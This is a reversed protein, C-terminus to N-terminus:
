LTEFAPESALPADRYLGLRTRKCPCGEPVKDRAYSLMTAQNIGAEQGITLLRDKMWLRQEKSVTIVSSGVFLPYMILYGGITKIHGSMGFSAANSHQSKPILKIAEVAEPYGLHYPVSWCIGNVMEQLITTAQVYEATERYSSSLWCGCRIIIGQLFCRFARYFNWCAAVREDGYIQFSGPWFRSKSWHGEMEAMVPFAYFQWRRPLVETWHALKNDTALADGMLAKIQNTSEINKSKILLNKARARLGPIPIILRTLNNAGGDPLGPIQPIDFFEDVPELRNMCSVIFQVRTAMFLKPAIGSAFKGSGRAKALAAAGNTHIRWSPVSDFSGDVSQFLSLLLSSAWTGDAKAELPDQLATRLNVLAESYKKRALFKMGGYSPTTGM